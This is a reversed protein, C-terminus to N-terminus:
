LAQGLKNSTYEIHVQSVIPEKAGGPNAGGVIAIRSLDVAVTDNQSINAAIITMETELYSKNTAPINIDGSSVTATSGGSDVPETGDETVARYVIQWNVEASEDGFARDIFWHIAFEIDESTDCDYPIEFEYHLDDNVSMLWGDFPAFAETFTPKNAGGGTGGVPLNMSKKIRATGVMTQIGDVVFQTYNTDWDGIRLWDAGTDVYFFNAENDTAMRVDAEAHGGSNFVIFGANTTIANNITGGATQPEIYLGHVNTISGAGNNFSAGIYIGYANALVQNSSNDTQVYLSRANTMAGTGALNSYLELAGLISGGGPAGAGTKTSEIYMATPVTVGPAAPNWDAKVYSSYRTANATYDDEIHLPYLANGASFRYWGAADWSALVTSGDAHLEVLRATAGAHGEVTLAL